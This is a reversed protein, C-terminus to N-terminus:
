RDRIVTDEDGTTSRRKRRASLQRHRRLADRARLEGYVIPALVALAAVIVTGWGSVALPAVECM